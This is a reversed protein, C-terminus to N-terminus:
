PSFHLCGAVAPPLLVVFRSKSVRFGIFSALALHNLRVDRELYRSPLRKGRKVDVAGGGGEREKVRTLAIESMNYKM